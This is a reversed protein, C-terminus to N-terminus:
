NYKTLVCIDARIRLNERLVCFIRWDLAVNENFRLPTTCSQQRASKRIQFTINVYTREGEFLNALRFGFIIPIIWDLCPLKKFYCFFGKIDCPHELLKSYKKVNKLLFIKLTHINPQTHMHVSCVCACIFIFTHSHSFAWM